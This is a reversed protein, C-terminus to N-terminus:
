TNSPLWKIFDEIKSLYEQAFDATCLKYFSLKYDPYRAEINFANVKRLFSEQEASLIIKAQQALIHLQHSFPAPAQNRKVFAGKLKKELVLHALFLCWDYKGSKFLSQASEWDHSASTEWYEIQSELGM